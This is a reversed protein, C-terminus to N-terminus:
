SMRCQEAALEHQVSEAAQIACVLIVEHTSTEVDLNSQRACVKCLM